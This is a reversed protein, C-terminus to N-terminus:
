DDEMYLVKLVSFFSIAGLLEHSDPDVVPVVNQGGALIQLANILPDKPKVSKIRPDLVSRITRGRVDDMRERMEEKSEHFFALHEPGGRAITLTKPILSKMLMEGGLLGAFAGDEEVVPILGMHSKTMFDIATGLPEDARLTERIKAMVKQCDM